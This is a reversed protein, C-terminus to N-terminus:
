LTVGQAVGARLAEVGVRHCFDGFSEGTRRGAAYQAFAPALRTGIEPRPVNTAFSEALRTGLRSGGVFISYLETSQGVIGIEATMPRACGNHCGTIRVVVPEADLGAAALKGHVDELVQPAVREAETVAQGCTPLAPCAMSHRLEPPLESAPRVGASRLARDVVAREGEAIGTLLVNQQPTPHLAEVAGGALERLVSRLQVGERDAVRGNPVRVGLYWRGEGQAHWGLHDDGSAWTLSRAKRLREGFRRELEERFRAVGWEDIVYKLRALKRNSRNGFDRHIGVIAEVLDGLRDPEVFAIPTALRPHTARVGPSVGLGGGALVTFGELGHNGFAPAIGADQTYVDVCNDGPAAFAIKFKRPLYTAGYLPEADPPAPEAAATKEGDIWVEYYARTAPKFRRSLALAHRRVEAARPDTTPAPCAVVNRVVDGCAALTSLLNENLLRILPRLQIKAVRHFQVDQRTTFRLTGDGAEDAMRDLSLYQAPNLIGGPVGVRVMSGVPAPLGTKRADRDSQQYTGHFKLIQVTEKTFAPSPLELEELIRGRLHRSAAKVQEAGSPAGTTTPNM